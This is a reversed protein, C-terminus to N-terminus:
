NYTENPTWRLGRYKLGKETISKELEEHILKVFYIAENYELITNLSFSIEFNGYEDKEYGNSRYDKCLEQIDEENSNKDVLFTIRLKKSKPEM